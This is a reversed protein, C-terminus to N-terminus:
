STYEAVYARCFIKFLSESMPQYRIRCHFQFQLLMLHHLHVASSYLSSVSFYRSSFTTTFFSLHLIALPLALPLSCPLAISLWACHWLFSLTESVTVVLHSWVFPRILISDSDVLLRCFSSRLVYYSMMNSYCSFALNLTSFRRKLQKEGVFNSIIILSLSLSPLLDLILCHLSALGSFWLVFVSAPRTESLTIFSIRLIM